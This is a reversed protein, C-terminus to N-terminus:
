RWALGPPSGGVGRADVLSLAMALMMQEEFSDPVNGSSISSVDSAAAALSAAGAEVTVDACSTSAEAAESWGDNNSYDAGDRAQPTRGNSPEEVRTASASSGAISLDETFSRQSRSLIDHRSTQCTAASSPDGLM